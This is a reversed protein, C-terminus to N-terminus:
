DWRPILAREFLEVAPANLENRHSDGFWNNKLIERKFGVEEMREIKSVMGNIIEESIHDPSKVIERDMFHKTAIEFLKFFESQRESGSETRNTAREFTDVLDFYQEAFDQSDSSANLFAESKQFSVTRALASDARLEELESRYASDRRRLLTIAGESLERVPNGPNNDRNIVIRFIRFNIEKTFGKQEVSGDESYMFPTARIMYAGPAPEFGGEKKLDFGNNGENKLVKKREVSVDDFVLEIDVFDAPNPITTARIFFNQDRFRFFDIETGEQLPIRNNPDTDSSESLGIFLAFSDMAPLVIKRVPESLCIEGGASLEIWLEGDFDFNFLVPDEPLTVNHIERLIKELSESNSSWNYNQAESPQVNSISVLLGDGRGPIGSRGSLAAEFDVQPVPLVEVTKERSGSCAGLNVSYSINVMVASESQVRNPFFQGEEIVNEVELGDIHYKFIGGGPLPNLNIPQDSQCVRDPLTFDVNQISWIILQHEARNGCRLETNILHRITLQVNQGPRLNIASLNIYWNGDERQIAGQIPGNNDIFATFNGGEQNPLIELRDQNNICVENVDGEFSFEADPVPFITLEQSLQNGCLNGEVLYRVLLLLPEETGVPFLMPDLTYNGNDDVILLDTLEEEGNWITFLGGSVGESLSLRLQGGNQCIESIQEGNENIIRFEVEPLKIITLSYTAEGGDIYYKLPVTGESVGSQSPTFLHKGEEFSYGPGTIVGGEPHVTIELKNPETDGECFVSPSVLLIPRPREAIITTPICGSVCSYPLFFDAVITRSQALEQLLLDRNDGTIRGILAELSNLRDRQGPMRDTDDVYALIFTGGKPVGGRHEMGPHELAFHHFLHKNKAREKRETFNKYCRDIEGFAEVSPLGERPQSHSLEEYAKSFDDYKFNDLEEPLIKKIIESQQSNSFHRILEERMKSYQEQYKRRECDMDKCIFQFLDDNFKPGIKLAVMEFSLNFRQRLDTLRSVVEHFSKGIHGEIRLFDCGEMRYILPDDFPKEQSRYYSYVKGAKGLRKLRSSWLNVLGLHNNYYFPVARESLPHTDSKGPTIRIQFDNRNEPVKFVDGSILSKIRNYLTITESLRNQNGNYVPPQTYPTRYISFLNNKEDNLFGKIWLFKPYRHKNPPCDAVLDYVAEMLEGYADVLDCLYDHLYQINLKYHENDLLSDIKKSLSTGEVLKDGTVLMPVFVPSFIKNAENFVIDLSSSLTKIILRYREIFIEYSSIDNLKVTNDKKFGFREIVPHIASFKHYFLEEMDPFNEGLHSDDPDYTAKLIMDAIEKELLIYRTTFIRYKGKEDCDNGCLGKDEGTNSELVLVLVKDELDSETLDELDENDDSKQELEMVPTNELEPLKLTEEGTGFWKLDLKIQRYGDLSKGGSKLLYGESTVGTGASVYLADNTEDWRAKLGCVIGTGILCIRSLRDHEELYKVIDNLQNERLVQNAKFLPYSQIIEQNKM